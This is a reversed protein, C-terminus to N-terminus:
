RSESPSKVAASGSGGFRIGNRRIGKSSGESDSWCFGKVSRGNFSASRQLMEGHNRMICKKVDEPVRLTYRELCSGEEVLSHGTSNSRLLKKSKLAKKLGGKGEEDCVECRPSERVSDEKDVWIAFDPTGHCSCNLNARCVPCTSHASLWADICSPHFVHNCQPLLRLTDDSNFDSICVACQLPEPHKLHSTVSSYVFTPFTQLIDPRVGGGPPCYPWQGNRQSQVCRHLLMSFAAVVLFTIIIAGIIVCISTVDWVTTRSAAPQMPSQAAAAVAGHHTLLLLLLLLNLKKLHLTSGVEM